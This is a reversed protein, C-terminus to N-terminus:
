IVILCDCEDVGFRTTMPELSENNAAVPIRKLGHDRLWAFRHRGDTFSVQGDDRLRITPMEVAREARALWEGFKKYRGSIAAGTGHLGVYEKTCRWALDLREVDVWVVPDRENEKIWAPAPHKWRLAITPRIAM